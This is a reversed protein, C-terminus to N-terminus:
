IGNLLEYNIKERIGYDKYLHCSLKQGRLDITIDVGTILEVGPINEEAKIVDLQSLHKSLTDWQMGTKRLLLQDDKKYELFDGEQYFLNFGNPIAEIRDALDIQRKLDAKMLMFDNLELRVKQYDYSQKNTATFLYFVMAIVISMIVMGTLIDMMTFAPINTKRSM